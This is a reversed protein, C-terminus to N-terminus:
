QGLEQTQAASHAISNQHPLLSLVYRDPHISEACGAKIALKPSTAEISLVSIIPAFRCKSYDASCGNSGTYRFVGGDLRGSAM